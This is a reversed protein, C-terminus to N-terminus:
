FVIDDPLSDIYNDLPEESRKEICLLLIPIQGETVEFGFPPTEGFVEVWRDIVEFMDPLSEIYKDLPEESCKEICDLLVPIQDEPVEPGFPLPQGFVEAWRKMIEAMDPQEGVM